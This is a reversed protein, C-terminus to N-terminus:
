GKDLISKTELGENDKVEQIIKTYLNRFSDAKGKANLAEYLEYSAYYFDIIDRWHLDVKLLSETAQQIELAKANDNIRCYLHILQSNNIIIRSTNKTKLWFETAELQYIIASDINGELDLLNAMDYKSVAIGYKGYNRNLSEFLKIALNIEFKGEEFRNLHGLIMGKYKRLNAEEATDKTLVWFSIASDIPALANRYDQYNDVSMMGKNQINYGFKKLEFREDKSISANNNKEILKNIRNNISDNNVQGYCNLSILVLLLNIFSKM